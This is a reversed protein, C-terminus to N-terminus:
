VHPFSPAYVSDPSNREVCQYGLELAMLFTHAQTNPIGYRAGSFRKDTEMSIVPRYRKILKRAGQLVQYEFGEVDIKLFDCGELRLSDLTILTTGHGATVYRAGTNVGVKQIRKPDDILQCEGERHGVAANVLQVHSFEGMNKELCAFCDPAPEFCYVKKFKHAMDWAWFGIHAGVDVAVGWRKVYKLAAVLHDRQFGNKKRDLAISGEKFVPEQPVLFQAFYTDKGPLWWGSKQKMPETM